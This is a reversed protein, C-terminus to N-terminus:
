PVSIALQAALNTGGTNGIEFGKGGCQGPSYQQWDAQEGGAETISLPLNATVGPPYAICLIGASPSYVSKFGKSLAANFVPNGSANTQIDGYAIASGPAGPAGPAGAVGAAGAPGAPGRAGRPGAKLTGKKFLPSNLTGKAINAGTITGKAIQKGKILQSAAFATGGSVAIVLALTAVINAYTLRRGLRGLGTPRKM